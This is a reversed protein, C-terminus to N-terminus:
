FPPPRPPIKVYNKCLKRVELWKELRKPLNELVNGVM